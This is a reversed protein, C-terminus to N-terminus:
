PLFISRFNPFEYYQATILGLMMVGEIAVIAVLIKPLIGPQLQLKAFKGSPLFALLGVLPILYRGQLGIIYPGGSPTWKLWFVLTLTIFVLAITAAVLLRMRSSLLYKEKDGMLPVVLGAVVVFYMWVPYNILLSGFQGLFSTLTFNAPLNTTLSEPSSPLPGQYGINYVFSRALVEASTVPEKLTTKIFQSTTPTAGFADRDRWVNFANASVTATALSWLALGVVVLGVTGAVYTRKSFKQRLFLSAPLIFLFLPFFVYAQKSFGVIFVMTTLLALLKYGPFKKDSLMKGVCAIALLAAGNIFGDPSVVSAQHVAMPLLGAMVLFWRKKPAIRIAWYVLAAYVAINALRLLIFGYYVPLNVLRDFWMVIIFHIYALPSYVSTNEFYQVTKHPANIGGIQMNYGRAVGPQQKSNQWFQDSNLKILTDPIPAGYGKDYKDLVVDGTSFEYARYTHSAEDPGMFPPLIFCLLIGVLLFWHLFFKEPREPMFFDRLWYSARLLKSMLSPPLYSSKDTM